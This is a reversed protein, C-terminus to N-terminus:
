EMPCHPYTLLCGGGRSGLSHALSFVAKSELAGLVAASLWGHAELLFVAVAFCRGMGVRVKSMDRLVAHSSSDLEPPRNPSTKKLLFNM